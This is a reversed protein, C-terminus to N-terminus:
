LTPRVRRGENGPQSHIWRARHISAENRLTLHKATIDVAGGDGSTAPEISATIQAGNLIDVSNARIHINGDPGEALNVSTAALWSGDLTVQGAPASPAAGTMMCGLVVIGRILNM